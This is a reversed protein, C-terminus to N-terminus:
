RPVPPVSISQVIPQGLPQAPGAPAPSAALTGDRRALDTVCRKWTNSIATSGILTVTWAAESGTPFSLMMSNSRRFQENFTQMADRDLAWTVVQGAGSAQLKWPLDSGIQMVV